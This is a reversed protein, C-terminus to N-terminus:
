HLLSGAELRKLIREPEDLSQITHLTKPEDLVGVEMDSMLMGANSRLLLLLLINCGRTPELLVSM